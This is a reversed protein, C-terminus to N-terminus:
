GILAAKKFREPHRNISSQHPLWGALSEWSNMLHENGSKRFKPDFSVWAGILSRPCPPLPGDLDLATGSFSTSTRNTEYM